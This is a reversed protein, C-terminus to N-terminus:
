GCHCHKSSSKSLPEPSFFFALPSCRKLSLLPSTYLSCRTCLLPLSRHASTYSARDTLNLAAMKLGLSISRKTSKLRERDGRSSSLPPMNARKWVVNANWLQVHKSVMVAALHAPIIRYVFKFDPTLKRTKEKTDPRPQATFKCWLRLLPAWVFSMLIWFTAPSKSLSSELLSDKLEHFILLKMHFQSPTAVAHPSPFYDWGLTLSFPLQVFSFLATTSETEGSM